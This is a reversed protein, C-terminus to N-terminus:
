RKLAVSITKWCKMQINVLGLNYYVSSQWHTVEQSLEFYRSTLDVYDKAIGSFRGDIKIFDVSALLQNYSYNYNSIKRALEDLKTYYGAKDDLALNLEQPYNYNKVTAYVREVEKLKIYFDPVMYIDKVDMEDLQNLLRETVAIGTYYIDIAHIRSFFVDKDNNGSYFDVNEVRVWYNDPIENGEFVFDLEFEKEDNQTVDKFYFDELFTDGSYIAINLDAHNPM